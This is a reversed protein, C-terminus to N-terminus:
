GSIASAIIIAIAIFIGSLVVGSAVNHEEVLERRLNLKFVSNVAIVSIVMLALGLVTYVISGLVLDL